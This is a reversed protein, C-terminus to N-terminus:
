LQDPSCYKRLITQYKRYLLYIGASSNLVILAIGLVPILLCLLAALAFAAAYLRYLRAIEANYAPIDSLKKDKLSKDGSWFAIPAAGKQTGEWALYLFPLACLICCFCCIIRGPM